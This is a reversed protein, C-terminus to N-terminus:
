APQAPQGPARLPVALRIRTGQGPASDIAIAAGLERARQRLSVLGRGETPASADFGVGDDEMSLFLHGDELAVTATVTRARAHRAANNAAEKFVLLIHRRRDPALSIADVAPTDPAHFLVRAGTGDFLNYAVQRMRQLLDSLRDRRPDVAWVIDSMSDRMSRALDAVQDLRPQEGVPTGRKAVESLIAIQSLGSGMEDHLDLAIQRRLREMALIQAVRYRHLAFGASLVACTLLVVFWPAQWLPPLVRFEMFAPSASTLGDDTLARVRLAYSGPALHALNLTRSLTPASWTKADRDLSYEYRLSEAGRAEVGVYEVAVSSKSSPVRFAPLRSAGRDPIPLPDGAVEVRKWYVPPVRDRSPLRSPDLRTVGENTALWLMGDRDFSLDAVANGALGDETTFHSVRGTEVDIRDLGKLTGVWVRGAGDEALSLAGDSSLGNRSSYNFFIPHDADPNKTVSLGGQRLAVWMWGRRDQHLGRIRTDPLGEQPLIEVVQGNLVRGLGISAGLWVVGARDRTIIHVSELVQHHPLLLGQFQAHGQEPHDAWYVHHDAGVWVQDKAADYAVSLTTTDPQRYPEGRAIQFHPGTLRWVRNKSAVWWDQRADQAPPAIGPIATTVPVRLAKEGVIEFLGASVQAFHRGDQGHFTFFANRLPTHDATEASAVDGAPLRALRGSRFGIWLNGERDTGLTMIDEDGLGQAARYVTARGARWRVLGHSTGIWMGGGQAPELAHLETNKPLPPLACAHWSDEGRASDSPEFVFLKGYTNVWLHGEGDEAMSVIFDTGPPVPFPHRRVRGDSWEMLSRWDAVWVRDRHDVFMTSLSEDDVVTSLTIDGKETPSGRFVGGASLCWLSGKSDVQVDYTTNSRRTTGVDFHIFSSGRRTVEAPDESLRDIGAGFSAIWLRGRHDEAVASVNPLRLGQEAGYNTFRYGDFCLLGDSTAVWVYGSACQHIENVRASVLGDRADYTRVSLLQATASAPVFVLLAGAMLARALLAVRSIAQPM